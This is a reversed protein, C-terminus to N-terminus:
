LHSKCSQTLWEIFQRETPASKLIFSSVYSELSAHVRGHGQEISFSRIEQELIHKLLSPAELGEVLREFLEIRRRPDTYLGSANMLYFGTPFPVLNRERAWLFTQILAGKKASILDLQTEFHSLDKLWMQVVLEPDGDAFSINHRRM